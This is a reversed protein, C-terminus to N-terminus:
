DGLSRTDRSSADLSRIEREAPVLRDRWLADVAAELDATTGTNDLWVDAVARRADDDAQSDIRSQAHAPDMGRDDVLRRLREEEPTGVIVVLHYGGGMSKEVLLPVDHVVIARNGAQGFLEQTRAAIRPHTIAELDARASPDTFVITGLAARDLAGDDTLVDDGFREAVDALGPTGAAVVERAILDSDIVVAGHAKLRASVISKGSGIGGSLGVKLM